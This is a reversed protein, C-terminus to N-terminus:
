ISLYNKILNPLKELSCSSKVKENKALVKGVVIDYEYCYLTVNTNFCCFEHDNQWWKNWSHIVFQFSHFSLVEYDRCMFKVQAWVYNM